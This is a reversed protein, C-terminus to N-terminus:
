SFTQLLRNQIVATPQTALNGDPGYSKLCVMTEDHFYGDNAARPIRNLM